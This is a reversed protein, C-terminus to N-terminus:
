LGDAATAGNEGRHKHWNTCGDWRHPAGARLWALLEPPLPAHGYRWRTVTGGAVGWWRAFGAYSPWANLARELGERDLAYLGAAPPAPHARVYAALPASVARLGREMMTVHAPSYGVRIGLERQTLGSQLRWRRLAQRTLPAPATAPAAPEEPM